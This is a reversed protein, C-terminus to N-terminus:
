RGYPTPEGQEILSDPDNLMTMGPRTWDPTAIMAVVRGVRKDIGALAISIDVM